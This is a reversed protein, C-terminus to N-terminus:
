EKGRARLKRGGYEGRTCYECSCPARGHAGPWYRWGVVQPLKRIRHIENAEIRRPVIIEWGESSDFAMFVAVAQAATM